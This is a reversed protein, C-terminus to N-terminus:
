KVVYKDIVSKDIDVKHGCNKCTGIYSSSMCSVVIGIPLFVLGAIFLIPATLWGLIPIWVMVGGTLLFLIGAEVLGIGKKGVDIYEGCERCKVKM